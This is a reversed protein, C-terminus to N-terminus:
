VRFSGLLNNKQKIVDEQSNIGGSTLALHFVKCREELNLSERIWAEIVEPKFKSMTTIPSCCTETKTKMVVGQTKAMLVPQGQHAITCDERLCFTSGQGISGFCLAEM